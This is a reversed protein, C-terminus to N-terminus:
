FIGQVKSDVGHALTAPHSARRASLYAPWTAGAVTMNGAPTKLRLELRHQGMPVRMTWSAALMTADDATAPMHLQAMGDAGAAIDAGDLFFTWHLVESAVSHSISALVEFDVLMEEEEVDFRRSLSEPGVSEAVAGAAFTTIGTLVVDEDVKARGLM